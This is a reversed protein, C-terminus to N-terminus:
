FSHRMGLTVAFQSNKGAGLYYGTGLGGVSTDFNLGANKSYATALYLSTRKSFFYKTTFMVQWPNKINGLLTGNVPNAVQRVDDYYYALTSELQPTFSYTGGVWYYNDRLIEVDAPNQSRGWRYGAVLRLNGAAYKGAVAARRAKGPPGGATTPADVEDYAVGIGFPGSTYSAAGGYAAGSRFSGPVEGATAPSATDVGFSWHAALEVPGFKAGYKVVNDERYYRGLYAVVPEYQPQYFGAQFNALVDFISTYQRGFTLKGYPSDFGVFAQRGFLRGSNAMKGDDSSFGSELVFVGKLGNGLDEVGRLGWRSGGIGGTLMAFRNEAPGPPVTPGTRSQNNVYELNTDILGYLTVSQANATGALAASAAVLALRASRFRKVLKM